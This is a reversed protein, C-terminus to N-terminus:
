TLGIYDVRQQGVFMSTESIFSESHILSGKESLFNLIAERGLSPQHQTQQSLLLM